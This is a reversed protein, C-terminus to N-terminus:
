GLPELTDALFLLLVTFLDQVHQHLAIGIGQRLLWHLPTWLFAAWLASTLLWLAEALCRGIAWSRISRDWWSWPPWWERDFPLIAADTSAIVAGRSDIQTCLILLSREYLQVLPAPLLGFNM